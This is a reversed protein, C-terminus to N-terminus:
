EEEQSTTPGAGTRSTRGRDRMTHMEVIAGGGKETTTVNSLRKPFSKEWSANEEVPAATLPELGHARSLLLQCKLLSHRSIAQERSLRLGRMPRLGGPRQYYDIATDYPLVLPGLTNELQANAGFLFVRVCRYIRARMFPCVCYYLVCQVGVRAIMSRSPAMRGPFAALFDASQFSAAAMREPRIPPPRYPSFIRMGWANPSNQGTNTRIERRDDAENVRSICVNSFSMGGM